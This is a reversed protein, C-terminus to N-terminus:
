IGPELGIHLDDNIHYSVPEFVNLTDFSTDKMVVNVQKGSLYNAIQTPTACGTGVCPELTVKLYEFTDSYYRGQLKYNRSQPCMMTSYNVSIREFFTEANPQDTISQQKWATFTDTCSIM